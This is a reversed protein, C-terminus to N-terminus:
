NGRMKIVTKANLLFSYTGDIRNFIENLGSITSYDSDILAQRAGHAKNYERVVESLETSGGFAALSELTSVSSAFDVFHSVILKAERPTFSQITREM